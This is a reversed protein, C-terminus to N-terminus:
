GGGRKKGGRKKFEQANARSASLSANSLKKAFPSHSSFKTNCDKCTLGTGFGYGHDPNRVDFGAASQGCGPCGTGRDDQYYYYNM